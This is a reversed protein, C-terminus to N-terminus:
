IGVCNLTDINMDVITFYIHKVFLLGVDYVKRQMESRLLSLCM